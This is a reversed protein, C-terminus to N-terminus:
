LTGMRNLSFTLQHMDVETAMRSIHPRQGDLPALCNPKAAGIYTKVSVHGAGFFHTPFNIKNSIFIVPLNVREVTRHRVEAQSQLTM